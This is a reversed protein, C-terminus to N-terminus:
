PGLYTWTGCSDTQVEFASAAIFMTGKGAGFYNRIITGTETLVTWYCNNDTTASGDNRWSGPAIDVNVLYNGDPHDVILAAFAAATATKAENPTPTDSPTASPRPTASPIPTDSPTETITPSELPTQTPTVTVPHDVIRTVEVTALKTVEATVLQTVVQAAQATYTPYPTLTSLPVLTALPVQTALPVAPSSCGAMVLGVVCLGLTLNKM